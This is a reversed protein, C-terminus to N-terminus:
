GRRRTARGAAIPQVAPERGVRDLLMNCLAAFGVGSIGATSLLLALEFLTMAHQNRTTLKAGDGPAASGCLLSGALTAPGARRGRGSEAEGPAAALSAAM